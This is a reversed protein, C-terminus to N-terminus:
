APDKAVRSHRRIARSSSVPAPRASNVRSPNSVTGAARIRATSASHAESCAMPSQNGHDDDGPDGLAGPRGADIGGTGVGGFVGVDDQQVDGAVVGRSGRVAGVGAQEAAAMGLAVGAGADLGQGGLGGLLELLGGGLAEPPGAGPQFSGPPGLPFDNGGGLSCIEEDEGAVAVAGVQPGPAQTGGGAEDDVVGGARDQQDPGLGRGADGGDRGGRGPRWAPRVLSGALAPAGARASVDYALDGARGGPQGAGRKLPVFRVLM